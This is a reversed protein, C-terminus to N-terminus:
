LIVIFKFNTPRNTNAHNSTHAHMQSYLDQFNGPPLTPVEADRGSNPM